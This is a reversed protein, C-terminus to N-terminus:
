FLFSSGSLSFSNSFSLFGFCSGSLHFTDLELFFRIGLVLALKFFLGCSSLSLTDTKM